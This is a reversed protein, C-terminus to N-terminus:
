WLWFRKWTKVDAEFEAKASPLKDGLDIRMQNMHESLKTWVESTDWLLRRNEIEEVAENWPQENRDRNIFIGNVKEMSPDALAYLVPRVAKEVKREGMAFSSSSKEVFIVQSNRFKCALRVIRLLWRSLFFNQYDLQSSLNSKTRGPDAVIVSVNTGKLRESLERAFMAAALKSQKYVNFGNYKKCSSSNLDDFNLQCKRDIINTNLFVIRVPSNQTLLKDLLLGTLLFAGFHNTAFTREIGDKNVKRVCDMVAANHVVGDIRDLEFKGLILRWPSFHFINRQFYRYTVKSLKQVFTRISDFDELDCQRCFIQKNRTSLVIDRRVQICKERNRCAMIVRANRKALEAVTAKGIGSTAGTVIYTKGALDEKLDYGAGSQTADLIHYLGYAAGIGPCVLIWPSKLGEIFRRTAMVVVSYRQYNQEKTIQEVQDLLQRIRLQLENLKDKTAIQQYDQAHEGAQIDLHVRLQAGSFWATSNSYLCIVHEGPLHSTFTFKGESTYLKSLIVKDEPDKVEVHMGINPYDGYGKTKPDYLQVKYNGTVMTEDPIEEIFCKKETEAIHFYLACTSGFVLLLLSVYSLM